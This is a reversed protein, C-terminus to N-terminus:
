SYTLRQGEVNTRVRYIGTEATMYLTRWDDGWGCNAPQEPLKITGLHRGAPTFVWVGGPGTAFLNGLRDLKLGDPLGADRHSTVDAFVQGDGLAGDADVDYRMWVRRGPDSNAVYLVKEDTSFALGNPRTMDDVLLQVAGNALRYVGNFPLDKSPDSDGQPLGYPPDTFYMSGDSRYVIDNPSNLRKGEFADVVTSMSLSADIRVVRRNGHQCLVVSGGPGATMGNPGVFGGAPLSSGDYGGPRFLETVGGTPSWQRVVNGIVDSFWLVGNPRWLPGETFTFGDVVKEIKAEPPVLEDFAPDLRLIRGVGAVPEFDGISGTAM